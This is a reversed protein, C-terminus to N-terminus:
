ISRLRGRPATAADALDLRYGCGHISELTVADPRRGNIKSRLKSVHADLTRTAVDGNGGWVAEYIHSRSLTRGNNRFMLLALAFEKRTLVIEEGAVSLANTRSNLAFAGFTEVNGSAHTPYALRYLAEIRALLVDLHVPKTVYEDAGARLATVIDMDSTRGTLMLVPPHWMAHQRSWNILELGSIDPINWDVVLIDVTEHALFRILRQGLHFVFSSHGASTIWEDLQKALVPDDELIGVRM